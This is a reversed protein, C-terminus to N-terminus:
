KSKLEDCIECNNYGFKSLKTVSCVSCKGTPKLNKSSKKRFVIGDEFPKERRLKLVIHTNNKGAHNVVTYDTPKETFRTGLTYYEEHTYNGGHNLDAFSIEDYDCVASITISEINRNLQFGGNLLKVAFHYIGTSGNCDSVIHIWIKNQVTAAYDNCVVILDEFTILEDGTCWQGAL